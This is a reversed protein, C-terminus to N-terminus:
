YPSQAYALLNNSESSTRCKAASYSYTDPYQAPVNGGDTNYKATAARCRRSYQAARYRRSPQAADTDTNKDTTNRKYRHQYRYRFRYSYSCTM